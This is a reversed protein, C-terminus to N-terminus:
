AVLSTPFFNIKKIKNTLSAIEIDEIMNNIEYFSCNICVSLVILLVTDEYTNTLVIGALELLTLYIVLPSKM